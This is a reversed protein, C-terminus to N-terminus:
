SSKNSPTFKLRLLAQGTEDHVKRSLLEFGYKEYFRRGIPNEEFVEVELSAHLSQAKDMLAKGVGRGHFAPQVFIAGVENEMLAIIGVVRGDLEYVWTEAVPMYVNQINTREEELFANSLFPHAVKSANEWASLVENIDKNEYKRIHQAMM